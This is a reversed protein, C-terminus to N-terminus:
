EEAGLMERLKRADEILQKTMVELHATMGEIGNLLDILDERDVCVDGGPAPDEDIWDPLDQDPLDQDPLDQDPLDQAKLATWTQLGCIGDATLGHNKQFEKLATETKAGFIGDATGCDFGADNLMQQMQRIDEGRMGKKMIRMFGGHEEHAKKIEEPTYLNKPIAYQTWKNDGGTVTDYKVEVSCHIVRGGGIHLGTHSFGGDSKKVFLCCVLDPMAAIDGREDWNSKESWQRGVYDGFLDIGVKKLTWDTFGRCDFALKGEYKCGECTAQLVPCRRYTNAKQNPNLRAYKKRLAVTCPSGWAGYVYPSGLQSEAAKIVEEAKSM